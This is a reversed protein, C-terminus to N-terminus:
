RWMWSRRWQNQWDSTKENRFFSNGHGVLETHDAGDGYGNQQEGVELVALAMKLLCLSALQGVAFGKSGDQALM